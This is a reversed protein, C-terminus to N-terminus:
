AADQKIPLFKLHLLAVEHNHALALQYLPYVMLVVEVDDHHIDGRREDGETRWLVIIARLSLEGEEEVGDHVERRPHVGLALAIEVVELSADLLGGMVEVVVQHDVDHLREDDVEEVEMGREILLLVDGGLIGGDHVAKERKEFIALIALMPFHSPIGVLEADGRLIERLYRLRHATIWGVEPDITVRREVDRAQEPVLGKREHLDGIHETEGGRSIEASVHQM